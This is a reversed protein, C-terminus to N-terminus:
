PMTRGARASPPPAPINATATGGSTSTGVALLAAIPSASPVAAGATTAPADREQSSFIVPLLKDRTFRLTGTSNHTAPPHQRQDCDHCKRPRDAGVDISLKAGGRLEGVSVGDHAGGSGPLKSDSRSLTRQAARASCVLM